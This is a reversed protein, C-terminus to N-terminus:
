SASRFMIDHKFAQCMDGLAILGITSLNGHGPMSCLCTSQYLQMLTSTQRLTDLAVTDLISIELLRRSGQLRVQRQGPNPRQQASAISPLELQLCSGQSLQRTLWKHLRIDCPLLEGLDSCSSRFLSSSVTFVKRGLIHEATHVKLLTGHQVTHM